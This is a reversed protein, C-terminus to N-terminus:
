WTLFPEADYRGPPFLIRDKEVILLDAYRGPELRARAPEEEGVARAGNAAAARLM